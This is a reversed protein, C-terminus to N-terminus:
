DYYMIIKAMTQNQFVEWRVGHPPRPIHKNYKNYKVPRYIWSITMERVEPRAILYGIISKREKVTLAKMTLMSSRYSLSKDKCIRNLRKSVKACQILEGLSLYSLIKLVIEDPFPLNEMGVMCCLVTNVTPELLYFSAQGIFIGVMCEMKTYASQLCKKDTETEFDLDFLQCLIKTQESQIKM